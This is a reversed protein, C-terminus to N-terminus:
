KAAGTAGSGTSTNIHRLAQAKQNLDNLNNVCAHFDTNWTSLHSSLIQGSDSRNADVLADTHAQVQTNVQNMENVADQTKTIIQALDSDSFHYTSPDFDGFQGSM